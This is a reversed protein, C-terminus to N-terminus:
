FIISIQFVQFGIGTHLNTTNLLSQSCLRQQTLNSGQNQSDKPKQISFQCWNKQIVDSKSIRTKYLSVHFVTDLINPSM